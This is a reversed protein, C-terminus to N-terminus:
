FSPLYISLNYNTLLFHQMELLHLKKQLDQIVCYVFLNLYM